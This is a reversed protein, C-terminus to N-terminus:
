GALRTISVLGPYLAFIVTIPLIGFVVPVLMAIERRGGTELLARRGAERVDAAQARLVEALPTGRELAVVVGDVFRALAPVGTRDRLGALAAELSGGARVRGLVDALDAALEGRGLRCVRAVAGVPGEGATVALALLEAVVPLEALVATRRRALRRSLAHDRALVGSLGGGLPLVLVAAVPVQGTGAALLAAGAAGAGLGVAGCLVQEVRVDEVTRRDGLAALRRGVSARGGLLRDVGRAAGAVAPTLLAGVGPRGGVPRGPPPPLYPALRATLPVRRLPPSWGVSLWLGAAAALGLLAGLPSM